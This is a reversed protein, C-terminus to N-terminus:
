LTAIHVVSAGVLGACLSCFSVMSVSQFWRTAAVSKSFAMPLFTLPNVIGGFAVTLGVWAPLGPVAVGVFGVVCGMIIWDLHLQQVRRPDVVGIKKLSGPSDVALLLAFGSLGGLAVSVLGVTVLLNSWM